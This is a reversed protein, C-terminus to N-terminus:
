AAAPTQFWLKTRARRGFGQMETQTVHKLSIWIVLLVCALKNM